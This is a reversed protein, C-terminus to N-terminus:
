LYPKAKSQTAEHIQLQIQQALPVEYGERDIIIGGPGLKDINLYLQAFTPQEELTMVARKRKELLELEKEHKRMEENQQLKIQYNRELEEETDGRQLNIEIQLSGADTNEVLPEEKRQTPIGEKKVKKGKQKAEAAEKARREKRAEKADKQVSKILPVTFKLKFDSSLLLKNMSMEGHVGAGDIMCQLNAQALQNFTEESVKFNYLTLSTFEFENFSVIDYNSLKIFQDQVVKNYIDPLPVAVTL